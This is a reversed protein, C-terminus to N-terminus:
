YRTAIIDIDWADGASDGNWTAKEIRYNGKIREADLVVLRGPRVGPIMGIKATLIGDSDVSPSGYLGTDHNLLIATEETAKGKDVFQIAGDQISWELDSQRCWDHLEDRVPGAIVTGQPILRGIGNIKMKHAVQSLNGEGVGLARVMARIATDVPTKPGFSVNIRANQYAKEGDGSELTTIWEAGDRSTYATRLDGLWLLSLDGDEEYGAEIRVPIGRVAQKRAAEKAKAKALSSVTKTQPVLEEIQAQQEANLNFVHLECTNPEDKLTKEITFAIDLETFRITNITVAWKRIFLPPSDIQVDGAAGFIAM